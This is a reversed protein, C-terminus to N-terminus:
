GGHCFKLITQSPADGGYITPKTSYYGLGYFFIFFFANQPTGNEFFYIIIYISLLFYFIAYCIANQM